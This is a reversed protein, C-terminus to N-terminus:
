NNSLFPPFGHSIQGAGVLDFVDTLMDLSFPHSKCCHATFLFGRWFVSTFELGVPYSKPRGGAWYCIHIFFCVGYLDM